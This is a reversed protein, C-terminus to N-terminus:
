NRTDLNECLCQEEDAELEEDPTWTCGEAECLDQLSVSKGPVVSATRATFNAQNISNNDYNFFALASIIAFIAIIASSVYQRPPSTTPQQAEMTM